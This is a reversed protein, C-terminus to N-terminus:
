EINEKSKTIQRDTSLSINYKPKWENVKAINKEDKYEKEHLKM